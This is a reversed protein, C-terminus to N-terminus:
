LKTGCPAGRPNNFLTVLFRADAINIVKDGNFDYNITTYTITGGKIIRLVESLDGRDICGDENIDGELAIPGLLLLEIMPTIDHTLEINTDNAEVIQNSFIFPFCFVVMWCLIKNSKNM